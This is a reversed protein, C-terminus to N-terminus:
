LVRVSSNFWLNGEYDVLMNDISNNLPINELVSFEGNQFYGIGTDSCVWLVDQLMEISTINDLPSADYVEIDTLGDELNGHYIESGETGIYVYGPNNPDPYVTYISGIGLKDADYCASIKKNEITFIAGTRTEGYIVGDVGQRLECVYTDSLLDEDLSTMNMKSDIISIGDTSGIYINGQDDEVISRISESGLGDEESFITFEGDEM